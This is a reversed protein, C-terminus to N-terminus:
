NKLYEFMANRRDNYDKIGLEYLKTLTEMDKTGASANYEASPAFVFVKGESELRGVMDITKMYEIHRSSICEATKPYKRLAINYILKYKQARRVFSRPNELILVIKDCGDDIAKRIPIPDSVGGDYYLRGGIEVPKCLVPIACSAMIARYDDQTMEDKSFYHPRGSAADTSVAYFETKSKMIKDFDLPDKGDSNTLTGYIYQLDFFSGTKILNKFGFYTHEKFHDIYFRKNRGRQGSIFSAGNGSGASVGICEDFNIRDDTLGDLVGASYACKMGGGEIILCSKSM